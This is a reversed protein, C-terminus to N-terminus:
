NACRLGNTLITKYAEQIADNTLEEGDSSSNSDTEIGENESNEPGIEATTIVRNTVCDTVNVASDDM